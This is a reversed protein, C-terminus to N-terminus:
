GDTPFFTQLVRRDVSIPHRQRLAAEYQILIDRAFANELEALALEVVEDVVMTTDDVQVLAAGDAVDVVEAAVTGPEAEFLAAVV